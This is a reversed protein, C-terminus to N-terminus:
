DDLSWLAHRLVSTTRAVDLHAMDMHITNPSNTIVECRIWATYRELNEKKRKVDVQVELCMAEVDAYYGRRYPRFIISARRRRECSSVELHPLAHM